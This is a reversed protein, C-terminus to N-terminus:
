KEAESKLSGIIRKSPNEMNTILTKIGDLLYSIGCLYYVQKKPYIQQMHTKSGQSGKLWPLNEAVKM